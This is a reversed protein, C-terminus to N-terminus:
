LVCKWKREFRLLEFDCYKHSVNRSLSLSLCTVAEILEININQIESRSIVAVNKSSSYCISQVFLCDILDDLSRRNSQIQTICGIRQAFPLEFHIVSMTDAVVEIYATEVVFFDNWSKDINKNIRETNTLTLPTCPTAQSNFVFHVSNKKPKLALFKEINWRIREFIFTHYEKPHNLIVRFSSMRKLDFLLCSIVNRIYFIFIERIMSIYAITIDSHM